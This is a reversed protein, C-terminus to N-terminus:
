KGQRVPIGAEGGLVRAFPITQPHITSASDFPEFGVVEKRARLTLNPKFGATNIPIDFNLYM